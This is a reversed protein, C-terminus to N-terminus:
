GHDHNRDAQDSGDGDGMVDVCAGPFDLIRADVIEPGNVFGLLVPGHIVFGIQFGVRRKLVQPKVQTAGTFTVQRETGLILVHLKIGAVFDVIEGGGGGALDVGRVVHQKLM